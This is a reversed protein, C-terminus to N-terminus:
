KMRDEINFVAGKRNKGAKEADLLDQLFEDHEGTDLAEDLDSISLELLHLPATVAPAPKPTPKVAKPPAPVPAPTPASVPAAKAKPAAEAAKAAAQAAVRKEAALTSPSIRRIPKRPKRRSLAHHVKSM